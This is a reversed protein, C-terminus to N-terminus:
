KGVKQSRSFSTNKKQFKQIGVVSFYLVLFILTLIIIFNVAKMAKRNKNENKM